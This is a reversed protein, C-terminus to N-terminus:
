SESKYKSKSIETFIHYYQCVQLFSHPYLWSVGLEFM